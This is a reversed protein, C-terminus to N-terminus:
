FYKNSLINRRNLFIQILAAITTRVSRGYYSLTVYAGRLSNELVASKEFRSTLGFQVHIRVIQDTCFTRNPHPFM